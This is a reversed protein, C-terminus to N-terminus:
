LAEDNNAKLQKNKKTLKEIQIQAKKHEKMLKVFEKVIQKTDIGQELVDLYWQVIELEKELQNIRTRMGANEIEMRPLRQNELELQMQFIKQQAKFDAISFEQHITFRRQEQLKPVLCNYLDLPSRDDIAYEAEMVPTKLSIAQELYPLSKLKAEADELQKRSRVKYKLFQKIIKHHQRNLLQM